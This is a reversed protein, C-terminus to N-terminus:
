GRVQVAQCICVGQSGGKAVAFWLRLVLSGCATGRTRVRRPSLRQRRHANYGANQENRNNCAPHGHRDKDACARELALIGQPVQDGHGPATGGGLHADSTRRAALGPIVFTVVDIAVANRAILVAQGNLCDSGRTGARWHLVHAARFEDLGTRRIPM